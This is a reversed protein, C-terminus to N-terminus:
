AVLAGILGQESLRAWATEVHQRTFLRRKRPNWEHIYDTVQDLDAPSAKLSDATFLVTGLLELGFADEFGAVLASFRSDVDQFGQDDALLGEAEKVASDDLELVAKAGSSGDGFGFIYHGEMAAVASDLRPAYPGYVGKDFQLNLPLGLRQLFFAIKHAEILSVRAEFALGRDMARKMYRNLAAIFASRAATLGPAETGVVMSRADPAGEPAWVRVEVGPLDGLAREILPAVDQWLLGGNGCGLPPVAISTIGESIIVERLAALGSSIDELRSPSRWHRKTPFNIIFRPGDLQSMHHVHMRGVAVEDHDCATKYDDFNAPYARKFQLAIGKGMVGVTNVTNVLADADALLLNGHGRTIM